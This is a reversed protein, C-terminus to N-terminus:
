KEDIPLETSKAEQQQPSAFSAKWYLQGNEKVYLQVDVYITYRKEGLKLDVGTVYDNGGGGNAYISIGQIEGHPYHQRIHDLAVERVKMRQNTSDGRLQANKQSELANVLPSNPTDTSNQCAAYSVLLLGVV